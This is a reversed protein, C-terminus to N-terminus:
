VAKFIREMIDLVTAFEQAEDWLPRPDNDGIDLDDTHWDEHGMAGAPAGNGRGGAEGPGATIVAHPAVASTNIMSM